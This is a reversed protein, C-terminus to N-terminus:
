QLRSGQYFLLKEPNTRLYNDWPFDAIVQFPTDRSILRGSNSCYTFKATRYGGAFLRCRAGLKSDLMQIFWGLVKKGFTDNGPNAAM